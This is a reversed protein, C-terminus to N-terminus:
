CHKCIELWRPIMTEITLTRMPIKRFKCWFRGDPLKVISNMNVTHWVTFLQANNFANNTAATQLKITQFSFNSITSPYQSVAKAMKNNYQCSIVRLQFAYFSSYNHQRLMIKHYFCDREIPFIVERMTLKFSTFKTQNKM